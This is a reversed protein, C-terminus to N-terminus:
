RRFGRKVRFVLANYLWTPLSRKGYFTRIREIDNNDLWVKGNYYPYMVCDGCGTNHRLGLAHGLEHTGTHQVNYTKIKVKTNPDPYHKPDVLNANVGAGNWTWYYDDNFVMDGGVPSNPTPFYAYALVGPSSKFLEDDDRPVFNIPIDADAGVKRRQRFKINKIEKGWTLFSLAFIRQLNYIRDFDGSWSELKWSVIGDPWKYKWEDINSEFEFRADM